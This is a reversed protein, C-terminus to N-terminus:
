ILWGLFYNLFISIIYTLLSIHFLPLDKMGAAPSKGKLIIVNAIILIVFGILFGVLGIIGLEFIVLITATIIHAISFGLIWKVNGEIGYLSAITNFGKATDNKIDVIDNAALHALAWPYLFLIIFIITFDLPGFCLYGAVPFFTLDTRGLLQAIPFRQKRKKLSYFIEMSYAYVMIIYIYIMNPLPLLAILFAAIFAFIGFILIAEWLAVKGSPIPRENFPRWYNTLTDDDTDLEDIKYDVIDNLVMGAEFGFLGIFFVTFFLALSFNGYKQFALLLGASFLLPWVIAFHARTLDIYAKIKSKVDM